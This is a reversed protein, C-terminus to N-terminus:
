ADCFNVSRVFANVIKEGDFVAGEVEAEGICGSADGDVVVIFRCNVPCGGNCQFAGFVDIQMLVAEVFGMM